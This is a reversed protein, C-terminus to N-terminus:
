QKRKALFQTVQELASPEMSTLLDGLRRTEAVDKNMAAIGMQRVINIRDALHQDGGVDDAHVEPLSVAEMLMAAAKAITPHTM